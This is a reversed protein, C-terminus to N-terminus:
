VCQTMAQHIKGFIDSKLFMPAIGLINKLFLKNEISLKFTDMLKGSKRGNIKLVIGWPRPISCSVWPQSHLLCCKHVFEGVFASAMLMLGYIDKMGEQSKKTPYASKCTIWQM